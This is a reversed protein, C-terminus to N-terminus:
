RREGNEGRTVAFVTQVCQVADRWNGDHVGIALIEIPLLGGAM